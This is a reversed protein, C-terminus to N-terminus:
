VCECVTFHVKQLSTFPLFSQEGKSLTQAVERQDTKKKLSDKHM